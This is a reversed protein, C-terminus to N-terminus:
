PAIFNTFNLNNEELAHSNVILNLHLESKVKAITVSRFASM